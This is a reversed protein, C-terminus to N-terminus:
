PTATGQVTIAAPMPACLVEGPVAVLSWTITANFSAASAPEFTLTDVLSDNADVPTPGLPRTSRFPGSLPTLTYQVHARGSGTNLLNITYDRSSGVATPPFVVSAPLVSFVAGKATQLLDVTHTAGGPEVIRLVDGFANDSTDVASSTPAPVAKATVVISQTGNANMSGSARSLTFPSAAGKVLSAAYTVAATGANTLVLNKPTGTAGCAVLGFDLEPDSVRLDSSIGSGSLDLTAAPATCVAGTPTLTFSAAAPGDSDPAFRAVIGSASANPSLVVSSASANANYVLSFPGLSAQDFAVTVPTDGRNELAVARTAPTGNVDISGFDIAADVLVLDAGSLQGRLTVQTEPTADVGDDVLLADTFTSGAHVGTPADFAIALEVSAGSALTGNASGTLSFPAGRRLQASWDVPAPGDNTLTVSRAVAATGCPITGFDLTTTARLPSSVPAADVAPAAADQEVITGADPSSADAAANDLVVDSSCAAALPIAAVVAIWLSEKGFQRSGRYAGRTRRTEGFIIVMDRGSGSMVAKITDAPASEDHAFCCM